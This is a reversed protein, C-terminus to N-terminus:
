SRALQTGEDVYSSELVTTFREKVMWRSVLSALDNIEEIGPHMTNDKVVFAHCQNKATIWIGKTTDAVPMYRSRLHARLTKGREAGEEFGKHSTCASIINVFTSMMRSWGVDLM